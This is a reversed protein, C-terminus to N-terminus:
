PAFRRSFAYFVLILFALWAIVAAYVRRWSGLFPPPEESQGSWDPKAAPENM